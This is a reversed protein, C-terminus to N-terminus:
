PDPLVTYKARESSLPFVNERGTFTALGFNRASPKCRPGRIAIAPLARTIEATAPSLRPPSNVAQLDVSLPFVQDAPTRTLSTTFAARSPKCPM